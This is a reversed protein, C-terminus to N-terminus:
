YMMFLYSLTIDAKLRPDLFCIWWQVIKQQIHTTKCGLAQRKLAQQDNQYRYINEQLQQSHRHLHRSRRSSVGLADMRSCAVPKNSIRGLNKKM